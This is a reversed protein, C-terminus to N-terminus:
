NSIRFKGGEHKWLLKLTVFWPLTHAFAGGEASTQRRHRRFRKARLTSGKIFIGFDGQNPAGLLSFFCAVPLLCETFKLFFPPDRYFKLDIDHKVDGRVVWFCICAVWNFVWFSCATHDEPYRFSWSDLHVTSELRSDMLNSLIQHIVPLAIMGGRGQIISKADSSSEFHCTASARKWCHTKSISYLCFLYFSYHQNTWGYLHVSNISNILNCKRVYKKCIYQWIDDRHM